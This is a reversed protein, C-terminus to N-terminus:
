LPLATLRYQSKALGEGHTAGAVKRSNDGKAAHAM